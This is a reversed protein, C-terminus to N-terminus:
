ESEPAAEADSPLDQSPPDQSPPDQSPADQSPRYMTSISFTIVRRDPNMAEQHLDPDSFARHAFLLDVFELLAESTRAEGRIELGVLDTRNRAERGRQSPDGFRPSLSTLRVDSPLAEVVLDFLRSWSFTRQRIRLNVFEIKQNLETPEFGALQAEAARLLGTERELERVVDQLGTAAAGQGSLHNWYLYGNVVALAAGLVLLILGVRRIPRLNVFPRRALNLSM